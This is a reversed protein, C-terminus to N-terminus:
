KEHGSQLYMLRNTEPNAARFGFREYFGPRGTGDILSLGLAEGRLHTLLAGMVATGVGQRQWDPRTILDLLQAGYVDGSARGFGVLRGEQYACVFALTRSLMRATQEPSRRGDVNWGVATCLATLAVASVQPDNLVLHLPTTM